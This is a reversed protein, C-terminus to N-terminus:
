KALTGIAFAELQTTPRPEGQHQATFAASGDQGCLSEIPQEGGPHRAVWGTLDYVKGDIVSWCADASNRTAVEAMTFTAPSAGPATPSGATSASAQPAPDTTQDAASELVTGWVAEAGSEGVRFTQVVTVAAVVVAVGALIRIGM